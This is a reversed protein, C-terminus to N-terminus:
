EWLRVGVSLIAQFLPYTSSPVRDWSPVQLGYDAGNLAMDHPDAVINRPM